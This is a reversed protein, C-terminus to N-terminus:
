RGPDENTEEEETDTFTIEGRLGEVKAEGIGRVRLLDEACTFPGSEERTEIIAQALAPGIGTLTDLEEATATNVNVLVREPATPQISEEQVTVAYSEKEGGPVSRHLVVLALAFLLTLVALAPWAARKSKIEQREM